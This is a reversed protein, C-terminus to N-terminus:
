LTGTYLMSVQLRFYKRGNKEIRSNDVITKKVITKEKNSKGM